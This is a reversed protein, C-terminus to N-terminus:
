EPIRDPGNNEMRNNVFKFVPHDETENLWVGGDIDTYAGLSNNHIYCNKVLINSNGLNDHLGALGCGNLDCEYVTVKEANDFALVRGSCNQFEGDGPMLHKMHLNKIVINSASSIWMVCTYLKTCYLNVEGTGEIIINNGSVWLENESIYTGADILIHVDSPNTDLYENLTKYTREPGIHVFQTPKFKEAQGTAFLSCFLFIFILSYAKM